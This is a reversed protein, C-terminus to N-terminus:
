LCIAVNEKLMDLCILPFILVLIISCNRLPGSDGRFSSYSIFLISSFTQLSLFVVLIQLRVYTFSKICSELTVFIIFSNHIIHFNLFTIKLDAYSSSEWGKLYCDWCCKCFFAKQGGLILYCFTCGM